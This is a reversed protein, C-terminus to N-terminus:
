KASSRLAEVLRWVDTSPNADPPQGLRKAGDVARPVHERFDNFNLVTKDWSPILRRLLRNAQTANVFCPCGDKYHLILWVEFSPVSLILEVERNRARELANEVDYEDVDCVAWAEDFEENDRIEAARQVAACPDGHEFKVLVKHATVWPEKRLGEFYKVETRRGNTIIVVTRRAERTGPSRRRLNTERPFRRPHRTPM